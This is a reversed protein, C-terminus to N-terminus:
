QGQGENVSGACAGAESKGVCEDGEGEVGFAEGAMGEVRKLASPHLGLSNGRPIGTVLNIGNQGISMIYDFDRVRVIALSNKPDIYKRALIKIEDKGQGSAAMAKVKYMAVYLAGFVLLLVGAALARGGTWFQIGQPSEGKGDTGEAKQLREMEAFWEDRRSKLNEADKANNGVASADVSQTTVGTDGGADQVTASAKESQVEGRGEEANLILCFSFVMATMSFFFRKYFIHMYPEETKNM